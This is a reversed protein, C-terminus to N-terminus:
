PTAHSRLLNPHPKVRLRREIWDRLRDNNAETLRGIVFAYGCALFALALALLLHPADPLWHQGNHLVAAALFALLPYHVLYLTYSFSALTRSSRVFTSQQLAPQRASLLLWLLFATCLGLVYAPKFLHSVWPHLCLFILVFGYVATAIWLSFPAVRPPKVKHLVVGLLWVPFLVLISHGIFVAVAVFGLAYAFRLRATIRRDLSLVALPFLIYYWFEFALSWLVRNSGFTPTLITQLFFVNGFFTRLSLGQAALTAAAVHSSSPDLLIRVTDWVLCLLLAPILVLWLRVLRHTLYRKWTWEDRAIWRLVSGSVLYGSLVFFIVVAEPGADTIGNLLTLLYRYALHPSAQGSFDSFFLHRTHDLLVLIAALARTLDLLASATTNRFAPQPKGVPSFAPADNSPPAPLTAPTSQTM